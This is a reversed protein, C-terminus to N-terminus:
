MCVHQSLSTEALKERVVILVVVSLFRRRWRRSFVWYTVYTRVYTRVASVAVVVFFFQSNSKSSRELLLLMRTLMEGGVRRELWVLWDSRDYALDVLPVCYIAM